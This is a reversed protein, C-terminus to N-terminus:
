IAGNPPRAIAFDSRRLVAVERAMGHAGCPGVLHKGRVSETCSPLVVSVTTSTGALPVSSSRLVKSVPWSDMRFPKVPDKSWNASYRAFPYICRLSQSHSTKSSNAYGSFHM